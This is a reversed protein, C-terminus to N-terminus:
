VLIVPFNTQLFTLLCSYIYFSFCLEFSVTVKFVVFELVYSFLFFLYRLFNLSPTENCLRFKTPRWLALCRRRDYCHQRVCPPWEWTESLVHKHQPIGNSSVSVMAKPILQQLPGESGALTGRTLRQLSISLQETHTETHTGKCPNVVGVLKIFLDGSWHGVRRLASLIDEFIRRWLVGRCSWYTLASAPVRSAVLDKRLLISTNNQFDIKLHKSSEFSM